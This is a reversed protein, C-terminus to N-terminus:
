GVPFRDLAGPPAHSTTSFASLDPFRMVIPSSGSCAIPNSANCVRPAQASLTSRGSVPATFLPDPTSLTSGHATALAASGVENVVIDAGEDAGVAASECVGVLGHEGVVIVVGGGDRIGSGAGALAPM